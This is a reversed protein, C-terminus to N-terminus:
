DMMRWSVIYMNDTKLMVDAVVKGTVMGSQPNTATATVIYFAGILEGVEGVDERSAEAFGYGGEQEGDGTIYFIQTREAISIKPFSWSLMHSGQGDLQNNPEDISLNGGFLAASWAEYDCGPPLRAGVEILKCQGPGTWTCTITCKYANHGDDWVMSTEISLDSSHPGTTVWDGAVLTYEGKNETNMAVQMNNLNQSLSTHPQTGNKLSWLVDEIGADASYLGQLSSKKLTVSKVSTGAYSVVPAIALGGLAFCILAAIMAQGHNDRIFQRFKSAIM